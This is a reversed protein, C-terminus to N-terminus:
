VEFVIEVRGPLQGRMFRSDGGRKASRIAAKAPATDAAAWHRTNDTNTVASDFRAKLLRRDAMETQLRARTQELEARLAPAEDRQPARSGFLNTLWQFM